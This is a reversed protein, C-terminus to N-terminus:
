CDFTEPQYLIMIQLILIATHTSMSQCFRFDGWELASALFLIFEVQPFAGVSEVELDSDASALLSTPRKWPM